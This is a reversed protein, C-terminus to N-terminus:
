QVVGTRMIQALRGARTGTQEAWKSVLMRDAAGDYDGAELCKITQTFGQFSRLGLNFLMNLIVAQRAENLEHFWWFHDADAETRKIDNALMLDCEDQSIGIDSLNRGIGISLKGVTDTYPKLRVGEDRKLMALIYQNM